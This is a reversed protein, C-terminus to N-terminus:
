IFGTTMLLQYDWLEKPIEKMYAKHREVFAEWDTNPAPAPNEYLIFRTLNDLPTSIATNKETDFDHKWYQTLNPSSYYYYRIM